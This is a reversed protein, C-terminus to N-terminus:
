LTVASNDHPSSSNLPRRSPNRHSGTTRRYSFIKYLLYCKQQAKGLL